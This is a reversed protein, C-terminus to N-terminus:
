VTAVVYKEGCATPLHQAFQRVPMGAARVICQEVDRRPTLDGVRHAVRLGREPGYIYEHIISSVSDKACDFFRCDVSVPEHEFRVEKAGHREGLRYQGSHAHPM